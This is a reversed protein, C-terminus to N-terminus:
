GSIGLFVGEENWMEVAVGDVIQMQEALKKFREASTTQYLTFSVGASNRLRIQAAIQGQISCYRAGLIELGRTKLRVPDVLTFDLKEMVGNLKTYNDGSFEIAFQKQHNIAIEQAINAVLQRETPVSLSWQLSIVSALLLSAAIAVNRQLMLRGKRDRPVAEARERGMQKVEAINILQELRGQSLSQGQYFENIYRNMQQEDSM